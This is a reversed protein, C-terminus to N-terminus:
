NISQRNYRQLVEPPTLSTQASSRETIATKVAFIGNIPLLNIFQSGSVSADEESLPFTGFSGRVGYSYLLLCLVPFLVKATM